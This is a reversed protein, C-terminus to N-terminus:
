RIVEGTSTISVKATIAWEPRDRIDANVDICQLMEGITQLNEPHVFRFLVGNTVQFDVKFSWTSDFMGTQPFLTTDIDPVYAWITSLYQNGRNDVSHTEAAFDKKIPAAPRKASLGPNTGSSDWWKFTDGDKYLIDGQYIGMNDITIYVIRITHQGALAGNLISFSMDIYGFLMEISAIRAENDLAYHDGCCSFPYSSIIPELFNFDTLLSNNSLQKITRHDVNPYILEIASAGPGGGGMEGVMMLASLIKGSINSPTMYYYRSNLTGSSDIKGAKVKAAATPSDALSTSLLKTSGEGRRYNGEPGTQGCSFLIVATFVSM